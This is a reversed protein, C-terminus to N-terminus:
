AREPIAKLLSTLLKWYLGVSEIHVQEDPSHPGTITPGISVMDMNPYPKQVSRMGSRRPDGHHEADQRVAGSVARAGPADGALRRGAALGYGGKPAVKAGALQGLATLMEVVYDKGSDILSRILCIIEAENESTTVVGVNLSTEVM